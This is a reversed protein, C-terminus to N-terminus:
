RKRKRDQPPKHQQYIGREIIWILVSCLVLGLRIGLWVLGPFALWAVLVLGLLPLLIGPFSLWM